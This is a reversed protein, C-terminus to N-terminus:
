EGLTYWPQAFISVDSREGEEGSFNTWFVWFAVEEESSSDFVGFSTPVCIHEAHSKSM